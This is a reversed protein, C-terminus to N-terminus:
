LGTKSCCRDCHMATSKSTACPKTAVATVYVTQGTLLNMEGLFGSAPHRVIEKGAADLIAVEGEIIAILPYRRDGVRYLVDGVRATREEGLVALSELQAPSLTPSAPATV